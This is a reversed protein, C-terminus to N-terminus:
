SYFSPRQETFAFNDGNKSNKIVKLHKKLLKKTIKLDLTNEGQHNLEEEYLEDEVNQIISNCEAASFEQTSGVLFGMVESSVDFRSKELKKLFIANRAESDPNEFKIHKDMRGPRMFAEDLLDKRNTAVVVTINSEQNKSAVGDIQVLLSTIATKIDGQLSQNGRDAALLEVEDIFLISHGYKKAFARAKSFATNISQAASGQWKTVVSQTPLIVLPIGSLQAVIKISLTKGNGPPGYFLMGKPISTHSSKSRKRVVNKIFTELGEPLDGYYDSKSSAETIKEHFTEPVNVCGQLEEFCEKTPVINQCREDSSGLSDMFKVFGPFANAALVAVSAFELLLKTGQEFNVPSNQRMLRLGAIPNNVVTTLANKSFGLCESALQRGGPTGIFYTPLSVAIATKFPNEIMWNITKRMYSPKHIKKDMAYLAFTGDGLCFLLFFVYFRYNPLNM